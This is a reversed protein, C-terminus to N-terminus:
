RKSRKQNVAAALTQDKLGLRQSARQGAQRVVNALKEVGRRAIRFEPGSISVAAVTHSSFDRIPAAICIVGSTRERDDVAWGRRRTLRIERKLAELDTITNATLKEMPARVIMEEAEPWPLEAILAKGLATCYLPHRTFPVSQIGLDAQGHAIAIYLVCGQDLIGVSATEKVEDALTQAIENAHRSISLRRIFASGIDLVRSGLDYTGDPHQRLFQRSVLSELMRLTTTPHLGVRESLEANTAARGLDAVAILVDLSRVVSRVVYASM